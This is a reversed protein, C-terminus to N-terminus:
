VIMDWRLLVLIFFHTRLRDRGSATCSNPRRSITRIVILIVPSIAVKWNYTAGQTSHLLCSLESQSDLWDHFEIWLSIQSLYRDIKKLESLSAGLILLIDLIVATSGNCLKSFGTTSWIITIILHLQVNILVFTIFCM